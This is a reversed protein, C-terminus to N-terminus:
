KGHKSQQFTEMDIQAIQERTLDKIKGHSVDIGNKECLEWIVRGAIGHCANIDDVALELSSDAYASREPVANEKLLPADPMTKLFYDADELSLKVIDEQNIESAPAQTPEAQSYVKRVSSAAVKNETQNQAWINGAIFAFAFMLMFGGAIFLSKYNKLLKKM